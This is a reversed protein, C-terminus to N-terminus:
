LTQATGSAPTGLNAKIADLFESLDHVVYVYHGLKLMETHWDRQAPKVKEGPRKAEVYLTKGGPLAIVFDPVGKQDPSTARDMRSHVFKWRPWQANCHDM